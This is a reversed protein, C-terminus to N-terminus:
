ATDHTHGISLCWVHKDTKNSAVHPSASRSVPHRSRSLAPHHSRASLQALIYLSAPAQSRWAACRRRQRTGARWPALHPQPDVAKVAARLHVGPVVRGVRLGVVAQLAQEEALEAELVEALAGRQQPVGGLARQPVRGAVLYVARRRRPGGRRRGGNRHELHVAVAALRAGVATDERLSALAAAVAAPWPCFHTTLFRIPV